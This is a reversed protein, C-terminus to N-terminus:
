NTGGPLHDLALLEGAFQTALHPSCRPIDAEIRPAIMAYHLDVQQGGPARHLRISHTELRRRRSPNSPKM